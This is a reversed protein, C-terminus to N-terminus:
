VNKEWLKCLLRDVFELIFKCSKMGKDTHTCFSLVIYYNNKEMGTRLSLMVLKSLLSLIKCVTYLKIKLISM